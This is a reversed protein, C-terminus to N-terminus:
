QREFSGREGVPKLGQLSAHRGSRLPKPLFPMGPASAASVLVERPAVPRLPDDEPRSDQAHHGAGARDKFHYTSKYAATRCGYRVGVM